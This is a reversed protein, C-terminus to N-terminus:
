TAVLLDFLLRAMAQHTKGRRVIAGSFTILCFTGDAYCCDYALHEISEVMVTLRAPTGVFQIIASAPQGYQAHSVTTVMDREMCDNAIDRPIGMTDVLRQLYENKLM